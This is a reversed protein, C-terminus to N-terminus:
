AFQNRITGIGELTSTLVNGPKLFIGHSMGVGAPTGTFILDGPLLTVVQSLDSVIRPVSFILDRTNGDQVTWQGDVGPGELVASIRLSEKDELEDTTVVAPGFPAFNPFSKGLSFQAAPGRRQVVRESYDQGLSLGAVHDWAQEETVKYGEKGIVVVLETEYDVSDSPLDVTVNPGALSSQFKTFVILDQPYPLSAEDAHDKYNLGIAFIQRPNPVPAGLDEENFPEAGSYDAGDAWSRFTDWDQYLSLPDAAFVGSSAREIDLAKGEKLLVSRGNLNAIRM